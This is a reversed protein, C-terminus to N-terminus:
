RSPRGSSVSAPDGELQILYVHNGFAGAWIRGSPHTTVHEMSSPFWAIAQGDEAREIVTELRRGMARWPFRASGAAIASIDGLGQIVELLDGSEADWIVVTQDWSGAVIRRGDPTFAAGGWVPGWPCRLCAVEAGAEADWVRM